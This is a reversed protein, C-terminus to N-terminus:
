PKPLASLDVFRQGEDVAGCVRTKAYERRLWVPHCPVYGGKGRGRFLGPFVEVMAKCLARNEANNFYTGRNKYHVVGGEVDDAYRLLQNPPM